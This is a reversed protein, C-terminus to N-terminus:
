CGGITPPPQTFGGGQAPPPNQLYYNVLQRVTVTGYFGGMRIPAFRGMSQPTKSYKILQASVSAKQILFAMGIAVLGLCSACYLLIQGPTMAGGGTSKVRPRPAACGTESPKGGLTAQNVTM